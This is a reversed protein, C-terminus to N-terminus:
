VDGDARHESNEISFQGGPYRSELKRINKTIVEEPNLNLAICAQAWYWIVDGLEKELHMRNEENLPKGHFVIKKVLGAFEGSEDAIGIGATILRAINCDAGLEEIRAEFSKPDKSADSTVGDVFRLYENLLNNM